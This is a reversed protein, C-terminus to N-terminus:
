MGGFSVVPRPRYDKVKTTSVMESQLNEGVEPPGSEEPEIENPDNDPRIEDPMAVYPQRSLSPSSSNLNNDPLIRM